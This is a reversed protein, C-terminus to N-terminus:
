LACRLPRRGTQTTQWWTYMVQGVTELTVHTQQMITHPVRCGCSHIARCAKVSYSCVDFESGQVTFMLDLLTKPHAPACATISPVYASTPLAVWYAASLGWSLHSRAPLPAASCICLVGARAESPRDNTPDSRTTPVAEKIRCQPVQSWPQRHQQIGARNDAHLQAVRGSSGPLHAVIKEHGASRCHLQAGYSAPSTIQM